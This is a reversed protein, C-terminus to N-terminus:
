KNEGDLMAWIKAVSDHSFGMGFRKAFNNALANMSVNAGTRKMEAHVLKVFQQQDPKLADWKTRQKTVCSDLFATVENAKAM